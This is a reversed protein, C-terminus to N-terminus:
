RLVDHDVDNPPQYGAGRNAIGAAMIWDRQIFSGDGHRVLVLWCRVGSTEDDVVAETMFQLM